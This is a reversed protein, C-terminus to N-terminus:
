QEEHSATAGVMVSLAQPQVQIRVSGEGLSIGDAMVAMAPETDIVM